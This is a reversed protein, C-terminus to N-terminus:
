CNMQIFASKNICKKQSKMAEISCNQMLLVAKISKSETELEDLRVQLKENVSKEDEEIARLRKEYKAYVMEADDKM